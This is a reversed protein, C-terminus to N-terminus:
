SSRFLRSETLQTLLMSDELFKVLKCLLKAPQDALVIFRGKGDPEAVGRAPADPLHAVESLMETPIM